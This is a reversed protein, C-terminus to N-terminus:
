RPMITYAGDLEEFAGVIWILPVQHCTDHRCKAFLLFGPLCGLSGVLKPLGLIHM